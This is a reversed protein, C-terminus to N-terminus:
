QINAPELYGSIAAGCSAYNTVATTVFQLQVQSGPDAYIRLSQGVGLALGTGYPGTGGAPGENIVPLFDLAGSTGGESTALFASYVNFGSSTICQAGVYEIVLRQGLPVTYMDSCGFIGPGSSNQVNCVAQMPVRSAGETEETIIAQTGSSSTPNLVPVNNTVTVLTSVVAHVTKPAALALVLAVATISGLGILIKRLVNM